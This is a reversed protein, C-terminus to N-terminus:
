TSFRNANRLVFRLHSLRRHVVARAQPLATTSTTQSPLFPSIRRTSPNDTQGDRHRPPSPPFPYSAIFIPLDLLPSRRPSCAWAPMNRRFGLAGGMDWSSAVSLQVDMDLQQAIRVAHAIDAVSTKSLFPPGAPPSADRAGRAGMDFICVGRIGAAHFAELEKEVHDRNVYGNLWLWYTSPRAEKPPNRFGALLRSTAASHDDGLCIAAIILLLLPAYYATRSPFCGDRRAM